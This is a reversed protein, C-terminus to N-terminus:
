WAASRLRPAHVQFARKGRAFLDVGLQAPDQVLGGPLPPDPDLQFSDVRGARDLVRHLLLQAGLPVLPGCNEGGFAGPPEVLVTTARTGLTTQPFTTTIEGRTGFALGPAGSTTFRDINFATM